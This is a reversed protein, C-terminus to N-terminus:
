HKRSLNAGKLLDHDNKCFKKLSVKHTRGGDEELYAYFSSLKKLTAKAILDGDPARWERPEEFLAALQKASLSGDISEMTYARVWDYYTTNRTSDSLEEATPPEEWDYTETVMNLHMPVNFPEQKLDTVPHTTGVFQDDVYFHVTNADVWWAGYTHFAENTPPTVNARGGKTLSDGNHWFHTNWNMTVNKDKFRKPGGVTEQIDLETSYRQGNDMKHSRSSLWFTSSMSISSAKMRCEYYGFFASISKSVIAGAGITFRDDPEDLMRNEMCLLGEKFSLAEPVFKAPARGKWFPHHNHWKTADLEDGNFEDTFADNIVWKQGAPPEPPAAIATCGMSLLLLLSARELNQLHNTQHVFPM